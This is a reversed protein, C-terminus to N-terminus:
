ESEFEAKNKKAIQSKFYFWNTEVTQEYELFKEVYDNQYDNYTNVACEVADIRNDFETVKPKRMYQKNKKLREYDDYVGFGNKANVAYFM